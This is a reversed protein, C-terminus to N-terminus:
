VSLCLAQGRVIGGGREDIEFSPSTDVSVLHQLQGAQPPPHYSAQPPPHYSAQQPPPEYGGVREQEHPATHYGINSALQQRQRSQSSALSEVPTFKKLTEERDKRYTIQRSSFLTNLSLKSPSLM